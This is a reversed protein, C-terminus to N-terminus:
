ESVDEFESASALIQLLGRRKAKATVSRAFLETTSCRIYLHSSLVGLNLPALEGEESMEVAGAKSLEDVANETLMSVYESVQEDSVGTLSYYVPNQPLRRYFFFWTLWEMVDQMSTVTKSAIAANLPDALHHHFSSEIPLPEFLFKNLYAKRSTHCYVLVKGNAYKGPTAAFGIMQLLDNISYDVYRHDRGDYYCTDLRSLVHHHHHSDLHQEYYMTFSLYYNFISTTTFAFMGMVIVLHAPLHLTWCLDYTAVLVQIYDHQYLKLVLAADSANM